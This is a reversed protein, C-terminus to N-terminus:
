ITGDNRQPCNCHSCGLFGNSNMAEIRIVVVTQVDQISLINWSKQNDLAKSQEVWLIRLLLLYCCSVTQQIGVM